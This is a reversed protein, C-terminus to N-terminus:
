LFHKNRPWAMQSKRAFLFDRAIELLGYSQCANPDPRESLCNLLHLNIATARAPGAEGNGISRYTLIM